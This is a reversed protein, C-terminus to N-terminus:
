IIPTTKFYYGDVLTNSDLNRGIRFRSIGTSDACDVISQFTNILVCDASYMYVIKAKVNSEKMKLRTADTMTKGKRHSVKGVKAASMKARTEPSMVSGKNNGAFKLINYEPMIDDLYKQEAQELVESKQKDTALGSLDIYELVEFGFSSYGYKIMAKYIISEGRALEKELRNTNLYEGVRRKLNNTSGVYRKNNVNNTWLYIGAM